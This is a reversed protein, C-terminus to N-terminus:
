GTRTKNERQVFEQLNQSRLYKNCDEISDKYLFTYLYRYAGDAKTATVVIGAKRILDETLWPHLHLGICLATVTKLTKQKDEKQRYQKITSLSIWSEEALLEETYAKREMHQKLSGSFSGPLDNLIGNIRDIESAIKDSENNIEKDSQGGDVSPSREMFNSAEILLDLTSMIKKSDMKGEHIYKGGVCCVSPNKKAFATLHFTRPTIFQKLNVVLHHDILRIVDLDMLAALRPESYYIELVESDTFEYIIRSRTEKDSNFGMM